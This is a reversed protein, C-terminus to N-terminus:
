EQVQSSESLRAKIEKIHSDDARYVSNLTLKHCANFCEVVNERAKLFKEMNWDQVAEEAQWLYHKASTLYQNKEYRCTNDPRYASDMTRHYRELIGYLGPLDFCPAKSTIVPALRSWFKAQKSDYCFDKCRLLQFVNLLRDVPDQIEDADDVQIDIHVSVNKDKVLVSLRYMYHVLANYAEYSASTWHKYGNEDGFDLLLRIEYQTFPGCTSFLWGDFPDTVDQASINGIKFNYTDSFYLGVCVRFEFVLRNQSHLLQYGDCFVSRCTRLLQSSLNYRLKNKTTRKASDLEESIDFGNLPEARTLLLRWIMMRVEFPLQLLPSAHQPAMKRKFPEDPATRQARALAALGRLQAMESM